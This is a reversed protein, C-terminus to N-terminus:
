MFDPSVLAFRALLENTNTDKRANQSDNQPTQSPGPSRLPLGFPAM